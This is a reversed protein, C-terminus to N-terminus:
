KVCSISCVKLIVWYYINDRENQRENEDKKYNKKEEEEKERYMNVTKKKM